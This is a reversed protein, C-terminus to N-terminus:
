KHDIHLLNQLTIKRKHIVRNVQEHTEPCGMGLSSVVHQNFVWIARTHLRHRLELHSSLKVTTFLRQPLPLQFNLFYIVHSVDFTAEAVGKQVRM